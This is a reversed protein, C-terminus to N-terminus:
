CSGLTTLTNKEVHMCLRTVLKRCRSDSGGPTCTRASIMVPFTGTMSIEYTCVEYLAFNNIIEVYYVCDSAFKCVPYVRICKTISTSFDKGSSKTLVGSNCIHLLYEIDRDNLMHSKDLTIVPCEYLIPVQPIVAIPAFCMAVM